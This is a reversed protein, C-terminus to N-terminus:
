FASGQQRSLDHYQGLPHKWGIQQVATENLIVSTSDNFEKSFNRGQMLQIKLSPIFQEDVMFSNIIIDKVLKEGTTSPDPVYSDGFSKLTPASTSIAAHNVGPISLIEQRMTEEDKDAMKEGNPILIVNEKKLGLDKTQTFRLQQFLIITCIILAISITFQFVVLGNRILLNSLSKKFVGGKLVSVPNFSTLYFAPYSGALLGTIITLILIFIWIGSQFISTFHLTKGAVANFVPLM